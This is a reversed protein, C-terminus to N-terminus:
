GVNHGAQQPPGARWAAVAAALASQHTPLQAAASRVASAANSLAASIAADPITAALANGLPSRLGLGIFAAAWNAESYTEEDILSVQATAAFLASKRDLEPTNDVDGAAKNLLTHFDAMRGAYDRLLRNLYRTEAGCARDPLATILSAISLQVHHLGSVELPDFAAAAEGLALVNHSFLAARRGPLIAASQRAGSAQSPGKDANDEANRTLQMEVDHDLLPLTIKWGTPSAVAASCPAPPDTRPVRVSRIWRHPMQKEWSEWGTGIIGSSLVAASGSADIFLDAEVRTGNALTVATIFGTDAAREGGCFIGSIMAVGASKASRRLLMQYAAGDVHLGAALWGLQRPWAKGDPDVRGLSAAVAAPMLEGYDFAGNACHLWHQHAPIGQLGGGPAGVGIFFAECNPANALFRTGLRFTAGAVSALEGDSLGLSRNLARMPPLMALALPPPPDQDLAILTIALDLRKLSRALAAAALSGAIGGGLICISRLRMDTM